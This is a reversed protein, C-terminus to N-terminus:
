SLMTEASEGPELEVACVFDDPYRVILLDEDLKAEGVYTSRSTDDAFTYVLALDGRDIDRAEPGAAVVEALFYDPMGNLKLVPRHKHDFTQPVFLGGKTQQPRIRRILVYNKLLIMRHM